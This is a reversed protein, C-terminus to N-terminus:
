ELGLLALAPIKKELKFFFHLFNWLLFLLLLMKCCKGPVTRLAEHINM